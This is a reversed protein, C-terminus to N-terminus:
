TDLFDTEHLTFVEIRGDGAKCWYATARVDHIYKDEDELADFFAKTLNDIDPKLHHPDGARDQKTKPAEVHFVLRFRSKPVSWEDAQARVADAFARYRMVCPRKKWKDQQTQRPKGVPNVEFVKDLVERVYRVRELGVSPKEPADPTDPAVARGDGGPEAPPVPAPDAPPEKEKKEREKEKREKEKLLEHIPIGKELADRYEKSSISPM